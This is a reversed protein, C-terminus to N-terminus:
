SLEKTMEKTNSIRMGAEALKRFAKKQLHEFGPVPSTTDELLVINEMLHTTSDAVLRDYIDILSNAVCHSGAEGGM